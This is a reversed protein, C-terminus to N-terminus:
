VRGTLAIVNDVYQKTGTLIGKEKVSAFGQYYGAVATRRDPSHRILWDLYAVGADINDSLKYPNLQRNLIYRGAWDSTAPLVQMVGIAGADSVMAQAFGSEQWAVARALSSDLGRKLAAQNIMDRVSAPAIITSDASPVKVIQGVIIQNQDNIRNVRMIAGVGTGFRQAISALTEGAAIKHLTLRQDGTGVVSDGVAPTTTSTPTVAPTGVAIATPVGQPVLLTQGVRLINVGGLNNAEAIQKVTTNAAAAIGSLTEGAVVVHARSPLPVLIQTNATVTNADSLRNLRMLNDVTTSSRDAILTLTEGPKIRYVTNTGGTVPTATSVAPAAPAAVTSGSIVAEPVTQGTSVTGGATTAVPATSVRVKLRMGARLHNVDRIGNLRSISAVTAGNKSAIVSLSDGPRVVYIQPTAAAAPTVTVAPKTATAGPLKLSAGAVIRNRDSLGNAAMLQTVTVHNRLAIGILTDGPAVTVTAAVAPAAAALACIAGIAGARTTSRVTM